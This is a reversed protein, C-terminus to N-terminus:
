RRPALPRQDREDVQIARAAAPWEGDLFADIASLTVEPQEYHPWHGAGDVILIRANAQGEVWELNGAAPTNDAAGHIVLRPVAVSGLSSRYDYGAISEFLKGFYRGLNDVHENEYVCVDPTPPRHTPDAFQAPDSVQARARCLEEPANAFEGARYRAELRAFAEQDTRRDRDAMMLPSYPEFRAAVPALQVLRTIRHPYRMAYVFTEMGGGSWGIVSIREAGVAARVADLDDVLQNLTIHEMPGTESRGRGRPDYTVVRRDDALSDLASGHYLAYPAIVTEEGAGVARYYLRVGDGATAFGEQVLAGRSACATTLLLLATIAFITAPTQKVGFKSQMTGSRVDARSFVALVSM